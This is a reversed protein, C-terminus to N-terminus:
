DVAAGSARHALIRPNDALIRLLQEPGITSGHLLPSGGMNDSGGHGEGPSCGETANATAYLEQLNFSVLASRRYYTYQNNGDDRQQWLIVAHNGDSCAGL